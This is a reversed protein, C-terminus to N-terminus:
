SASRLSHMQLLAIETQLLTTTGDTCQFIANGTEDLAIVTGDHLVGDYQIALTGKAEIRQLWHDHVPKFGEEGWNHLWTLLHRSLSSLFDDRTIDGCGEDWFSTKGYTLGSDQHIDDPLLTIDMSLVLWDPVQKDSCTESVVLDATGVCGNNLLVTAPWAYTLSVEPPMLAGAADGFAVMAAFVMEYCRDRSVDPELIIAFTLHDEAPSWYLDGAGAKKEGIESIAVDAPNVFAETRHGTILPPFSLSTEQM